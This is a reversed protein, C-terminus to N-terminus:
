DPERQGSQLEETGLLQKMSEYTGWCVAAAPVHFLIRPKIGNWFVASGEHQLMRNAVALQTSMDSDVASHVVVSSLFVNAHPEM